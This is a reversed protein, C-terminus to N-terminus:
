KQHFNEFKQFVFFFKTSVLDFGHCGNSQYWIIHTLDRDERIQPRIQPLVRLVCSPFTLCLTFLLVVLVFEVPLLDGLAAGM